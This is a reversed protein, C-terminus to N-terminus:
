DIRVYRVIIAVAGYYIGGATKEVIGNGSPVGLRSNLCGSPWRDGTTTLGAQAHLIDQYNTRVEGITMSAPDDTYVTLSCNSETKLFLFPLSSNWFPAFEGALYSEAGLFEIPPPSILPAVAWDATVARLRERKM